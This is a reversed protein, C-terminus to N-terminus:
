WYLYMLILCCIIVSNVALCDIAFLFKSLTESKKYALIALIDVAFLFIVARSVDEPLQQGCISSSKRDLITYLLCHFLNILRSKSLMLQVFNSCM